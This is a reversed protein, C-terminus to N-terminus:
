ATEDADPDNAVATSIEVENVHARIAGYALNIERIIETVEDFDIEAPPEADDLCLPASIGIEMMESLSSSAAFMREALDAMHEIQKITSM